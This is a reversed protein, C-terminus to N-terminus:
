GFHFGLHVDLFHDGCYGMVRKGICGFIGPSRVGAPVAANTTTLGDLIRFIYIYNCMYM